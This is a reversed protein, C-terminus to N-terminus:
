LHSLGAPPPTRPPNKLLNGRITDFIPTMKGSEETRLVTMDFHRGTAKAHSLASKLAASESGLDSDIRQMEHDYIFVSWRPGDASIIYTSKM